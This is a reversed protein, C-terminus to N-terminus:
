RISNALIVPNTENILGSVRQLLFTTRVNSHIHEMTWVTSTSFHYSIWGVSVCFLAKEDTVHNKKSGLRFFAYSQAISFLVWEIRCFQVTDLSSSSREDQILLPHVEKMREQSYKVGAGHLYTLEAEILLIYVIDENTKTYRLPILAPPTALNGKGEKRQSINRTVDGILMLTVVTLFLSQKKITPM